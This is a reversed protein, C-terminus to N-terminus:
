DQRLPRILHELGNLQIEMMLEMMLGLKGNPYGKEKFWLIYTEPLDVLYRGAYKGFPMKTNALELLFEHDEISGIINEEKTM